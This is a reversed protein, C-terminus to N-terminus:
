YMEFIGPRSCKTCRAQTAEASQQPGCTRCHGRLPSKVFLELVDFTFEPVNELTTRLLSQDAKNWIDRFTQRGYEATIARLPCSSKPLTYVEAVVSLFEAPSPRKELASRFEQEVLVMLNSADYKDALIYTLVINQLQPQVEDSENLPETYSGTYFYKLM